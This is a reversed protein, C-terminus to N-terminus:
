GPNQCRSQKIKFQSKFRKELATRQAAREKNLIYGRTLRMTCNSWSYNLVHLRKREQGDPKDGDRLSSNRCRAPSANDRCSSDITDRWTRDLDAKGELADVFRDCAPAAPRYDRLAAADKVARIEASMFACRDRTDDLLAARYDEIGPLALLKMAPGIRAIEDCERQVAALDARAADEPTLLYPSTTPSLPSQEFLLKVTNRLAAADVKKSDFTVTNRCTEDDWSVQAASAPGCVALGVLVLPVAQAISVLRWPIFDVM